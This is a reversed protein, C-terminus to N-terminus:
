NVFHKEELLISLNLSIVFKVLVNEIKLRLM